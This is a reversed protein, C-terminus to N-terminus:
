YDWGRYVKKNGLKNTWVAPFYIESDARDKYSKVIADLDDKETLKKAVIVWRVGFCENSCTSLTLYQDKDTCTIDSTYWSRKRIDEIWSNFDTKGDDFDHVRWYSFMTGNDSAKTINAIFCGVIAYKQNTGDYITNFNIVPNKKLFDVGQKYEHIHAFSTGFYNMHHGYITINDSQGKSDITCNQDVFLTGSISYKRDLNLYLYENNDKGKVVAANIHPEGSSDTLTPISLWGIVDKNRELLKSSWAQVKREAPKVPQTQTQTGSPKQTNAATTQQPEDSLHPALEQLQKSYSEEAGKNRLFLGLNVISVLFVVISFLFLVKRFIESRNDKKSPILYSKVSSAISKPENYTM